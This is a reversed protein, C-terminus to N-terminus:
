GEDETFAGPRGIATVDGLPVEVGNVKLFAAGDRYNISEVTGILALQPEFTEGSGDTAVATVTYYGDDMRNGRNDRGDWVLSGVGPAVDDATVTAVSAGTADKIILKIESAYKDITYSISPSNDGELYVGSYTAKVDKGILGAAMTNNISQMQLFDWRNSTAIGEAINNMQELTSFQALQAVFDADDMPNLPDQYRLKTIMLQLFDDKGLSRSSATNQGANSTSTAIPTLVSM